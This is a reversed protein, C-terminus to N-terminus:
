EENLLTEMQVLLKELRKSKKVDNWLKAKHLRQNIQKFRNRLTTSEETALTSLSVQRERIQTLSLNQKLVDQLLNQREQENKVRAIARAKTYDIRGQRLVELIDEPLNRLPLRSSIFSQWSMRGLATFVEKITLDEQNPFVNERVRGEEENKMKYLVTIAESVSLGLRISLLQLIGETEEVPNLDDRQLNEVLSIELAERVSLERVVVPVETLGATIAARYRREGAVLKYRGDSMPCVCLPEIIGVQRVSETLNALKQVDFYRRVQNPERVVKEIPIFIAATSTSFKEDSVVSEAQLQEILEQQLQIKREAELLKEEAEVIQIESSFYDNIGSVKSVKSGM